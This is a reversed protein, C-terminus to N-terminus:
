EEYRRLRTRLQELEELLDLALAAGPTNVGLDRKLNRTLRVRRLSISLFRWNAPEHGLPAIVGQDVLEVIQEESLECAHCLQALSLEVNEELLDGSLLTLKESKM